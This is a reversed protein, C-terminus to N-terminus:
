VKMLFMGHGECDHCVEMKAPLNVIEDNDDEHENGNYEANYFLVHPYTPSHPLYTYQITCVIHWVKACRYTDIDLQL